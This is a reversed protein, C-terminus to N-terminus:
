YVNLNEAEAKSSADIAGRPQSEFMQGGKRSGRGALTDLFGEGRERQVSDPALPQLMPNIMSPHVKLFCQRHVKFTWHDSHVSGHRNSIGRNPALSCFLSLVLTKFGAVNKEYSTNVDYMQKLCYM